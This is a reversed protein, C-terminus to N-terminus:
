LLYAITVHSNTHIGDITSIAHRSVNIGVIDWKKLRLENLAPTLSKVM